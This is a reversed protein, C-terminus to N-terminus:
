KQRAQIRYDNNGRGRRMEIPDPSRFLFGSSRHAVAGCARCWRVTGQRGDSELLDFVIWSRRHPCRRQLFALLTAWLWIIFSM